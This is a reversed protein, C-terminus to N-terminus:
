LYLLHHVTPETRTAQKLEQEYRSDARTLREHQRLHEALSAVVFTEVYRDPRELDRCIGWRTAGDRRRIRGYEHIARIFTELQDPDVLYEVTVLVPGGSEYEEPNATPMRWHNWPTLDIGTEPFRLFLGISTTAITGAGAWFLANGIGVRGAAVGWAASGAAIAGQLVLLSVALVRARVWDPAQNLVEVNFLSMFSTWSAGGIFMLLALSILQRSHGSAITVLGFVVLGASVVIDASWRRRARQMTVAGVVAGAGFCGLLTGYGLPSGDV